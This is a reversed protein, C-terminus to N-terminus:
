FIIKRGLYEFNDMFHFSNWEDHIELQCNLSVKHCQKEDDPVIDLEEEIVPYNPFGKQRENWLFSILSRIYQSTERRTKIKNLYEFYESVKGKENEQLYKGSYKLLEIMRQINDENEHEKLESLLEFCLMKDCIEQNVFHSIFQLLHLSHEKENREIALKYHHIIRHIAVKGIEPLLCNIVSIFTTFVITQQPQQKQALILFHILLGKGISLNFQFTERLITQINEKTLKNILGRFTSKM